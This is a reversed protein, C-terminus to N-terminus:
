KMLVKSKNNENVFNKAKEELLKFNHKGNSYPISDLLEIYAPNEYDPINEACYQKVCEILEDNNVTVDDNKEIYLMPVEKHEEDPAGVVVCDKIYNLKLVCSEITEPSIKFSDMKILRRNRGTVFVFGDQDVFGLDGTHVWSSGDKHTQKIKNTETPNNIYEVFMNDSKMCLEGVEGDPLQENTNEDFAHIEVGKLPIGISDPKSGFVPTIVSAGCMENNGYGNIIPVNFTHEMRLIEDASIKDGGSIFAKTNKLKNIIDELEKTKKLLDKKVSPSDLKILEDIENKLSVMKAYICRYHLPVGASIDIKGLAKLVVDDDLYPSLVSELGFTMAAYISNCLGYIIFPPVTVFMRNGAVLPLDSYSEKVMENNFNYETHLISKSKGTSGSSQVIISPRDKEFLVPTIDTNKSGEKYFDMYKMVRDNYDIDIKKNEKFDKYNAVIKAIPNLYDKPSVVLVKEVNTENLINIVNNAVGDFAVVFKCGDNENLKDILDKEKNRVDIWKATAGLYSLALLNEQVAPINILLLGVSDGERVGNKYYADALKVARENILGDFSTRTGFFDIAKKDMNNENINKIFSYMTQNPNLDLVPENRYFNYNKEM